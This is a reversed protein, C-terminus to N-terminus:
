AACRPARSRTRAAATNASPAWRAIIRARYDDLTWGADLGAKIAMDRLTNALATVGADEARPNTTRCKSM